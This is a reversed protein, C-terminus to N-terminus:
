AGLSTTPANLQDFGAAPAVHPDVDAGTMLAGVRERTAAAADLIGAVEGRYLVMIRDGMSIVEGLDSSIFFVAARNSRAQALRELVYETAAIDLGRTPQNAVLVRPNSSLVRALVVRQQNGGSLTRAKAQESPTQIHFLRIVQRAFDRIARLSLLIGRSFQATTVRDIVVNEAVTMELILGEAHRDDPILGVGLASKRRDVRSLENGAIRVVGAAPRRLGALIEVLERQGNGEVGALALIEGARLDFSVDTLGPSDHGGPVSVGEVQLVVEGPPETALRAVGRELERGVMMTAVADPTTQSTPVTAVEKGQRMVTLTDSVQFVEDLHHTIFVVARGDAAIKRLVSFLSSIEAPALVTTPEDLILVRANRYLAKLIEVRQRVGLPLEAVKADPRVGLGYESAVRKVEARAHRLDLVLGFDSRRAMILNEAVTFSPLLKFNQHVMAIGQAIADAPKRIFAERGGVIIRGGDPRHIGYLINMLTSKGAGNEGLLAHIRGPFLQLTVDDNALVGPFRKTIGELQVIPIDRTTV